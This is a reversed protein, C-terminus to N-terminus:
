PRPRSRPKEERELEAMLEKETTRKVWGVMMDAEASALREATTDSPEELRASKTIRGNIEPNM